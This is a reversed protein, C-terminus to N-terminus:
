NTYDLIGIVVHHASVLLSLGIYTGGRTWHNEVNTRHLRPHPHLVHHPVVPRLCPWFVLLVYGDGHTGGFLMGGVRAHLIREFM